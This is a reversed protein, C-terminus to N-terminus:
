PSNSYTGTSEIKRIGESRLACQQEIYYKFAQTSTFSHLFEQDKPSFQQFYLEEHFKSNTEKIDSINSIISKEAPAVIDNILFKVLDLVQKAAENNDSGILKWSKELDKQFEKYKPFNPFKKNTKCHLTCEQNILDVFVFENLTIKSIQPKKTTGLLVPFCSDYFGNLAEPLNCVIAFAWRLPRLLFNFVLIIKCVVIEEPHFVVISTEFFLSQLIILFQNFSVRSILELLCSRAFPIHDEYNYPRTWNFPTYSICNVTFTSNPEPTMQNVLKRLLNHLDNSATIPWQYHEKDDEDDSFSLMQPIDSVLLSQSTKPVCIDLYKSVRQDMDDFIVPDVTLNQHQQFLENMKKKINPWAQYRLVDDCTLIWQILDYFMQDYPLKTQIAICIEGVPLGNPKIHSILEDLTFNHIFSPLTLPTVYFRYCFLFPCNRVEKLFYPLYKGTRKAYIEQLSDKFNLFNKNYMVRGQPFMFQIIEEGTGKGINFLVRPGIEYPEWPYNGFVYISDILKDFQNSTRRQVVLADDSDKRTHPSIPTPRKPRM